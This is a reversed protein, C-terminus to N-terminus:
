LVQQVQRRGEVIPNAFFASGSVQAVPQHESRIVRDLVRAPPLGNGFGDTLSAGITVVRRLAAAADTPRSEARRSQAAPAAALAAIPVLLFSRRLARTLM